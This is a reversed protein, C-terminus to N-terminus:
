DIIPIFSSHVHWLGEPRVVESSFMANWNGIEAVKQWLTKETSVSVQEAM